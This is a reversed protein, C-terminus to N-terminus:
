KTLKNNTRGGSAFKVGPHRPQPPVWRQWPQSAARSMADDPFHASTSCSFGCGGCTSCGCGGPFVAVLASKRSKGSLRSAANVSHQSGRTRCWTSVDYERRLSIVRFLEMADEHVGRCEDEGPQLVAFATGERQRASRILSSGRLHRGARDASEGPSQGDCCGYPV